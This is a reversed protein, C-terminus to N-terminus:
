FKFEIHSYGLGDRVLVIQTGIREKLSAVHSIIGIQKQTQYQLMDLTNMAIELTEPDLTGFGEDIFLCDIPNNRSALDSLSLALALSVIFTEGGSLTKVTRRVNGQYTDIIELDSKISDPMVLLYRDTLTNLRANAFTLLHKLSLTQAFHAFKKGEADGIIHSLLRWKKGNKDLIILENGLNNKKNKEIENKVLKEQMSGIDRNINEIKQKILGIDEELQVLDFSIKEEQLQLIQNKITSIEASYTNIKKIIQDRTIEITRCVDDSLLSSKAEAISGFQLIKLDKLLVESNQTFKNENVKLTIEIQSIAGSSKQELQQAKSLKDQLQNTINPINHDRYKDKFSQLLGSYEKRLLELNVIDNELDALIRLQESYRYCDNLESISSNLTDIHVKIKSIQSEVFSTKEIFEPPILSVLEEIQKNKDVLLTEMSLKKNLKVQLISASKKLGDELITKKIDLAGLKALDHQNLELIASGCIPCEDGINLENIVEVLPEKKKLDNYQQTVLLLEKEQRLLDNTDNDIESNLNTIQQHLDNTELSIKIKQHVYNEIATLKNLTQEAESKKQILITNEKQFNSIDISNTYYQHSQIKDLLSKETEKVIDLKNSMKKDLLKYILDKDTIKSVKSEFILNQKQGLTKKENLIAESANFAAEYAKMHAIFSTLPVKENVLISYEEIVENIIVSANQYNQQEVKLEILDKQISNSLNDHIIIAERFPNLKNHLALKEIQPKFTEYEINVNNFLNEKEELLTSLALYSKCKVLQSSLIMYQQNHASLQEMSINLSSNVEDVEANTFLIISDYLAKKEEYMKAVDKNRNFAMIGLERYITTGTLKELLESREEPKAKLFQAFEGQSLLISKLFQQSNLKIIRQNQIPVESKKIPFIEGKTLNTLEMSYDSLSGTRTKRISWRSRYQVENVTYELEAIAEECNHTMIAGFEEVTKQSISGLRPIENFLALSIADLITSKGAGTPGSILFLSSHNWVEHNFDITHEGKLSNLNKIFVKNIRM